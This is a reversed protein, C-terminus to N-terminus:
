PQTGHQPEQTALPRDLSLLYAVLAQQDAEGFGAQRDAWYAHGAGTVHASRAVPSAANAAVVAARRDRDILARLSNAPDPAIGALLTAAIGTQAPDPGVAVGGDHLYPASWALGVLGPVKYGGQTGGGAWALTVQAEDPVPVPITATGAPVPFPTDPPYLAPPAADAKARAFARARTPETGIEAVPLVRNNSFGPGSHCGACGARVFVTRGAAARATGAEPADPPRLRNQFPSMADIAHGVPEGPRSAVLGDSTVDNARPHSPLVAYRNLGPVGPTPDGAALVASPKRGGAPDFRLGRDPAAQLLTGLYVEPDLGFLTPAAAAQATADSNLGHVNNNLASLGRFPGIGAHGSWGYPHADRTFSSPISTPNNVLDPSSDFSGPPWAALMARVDRALADSDPLRDATGPVVRGPDTRYPDLSAVGTHVVYAAPNAALAMMLGTNLDTNPAGEVVKGSGPDVAAHCLACTIGMRIRGRDYVTRIGLPFLGGRPVDLGTSITEGARYLRDGVRVDRALRVRLDHTGRGALRALALSVEVIGLGGDLLGMADSLFVENGYTERWFAERGTRLLADDIRIAGAAPSLTRRGDEGTELSRAEGASVSRGMVDYVAEVPLRDPNLLDAEDPMPAYSVRGLVLFGAVPLAVALAAVLLRRARM